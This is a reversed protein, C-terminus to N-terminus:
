KVIKIPRQNAPIAPMGHLLSRRLFTISALSFCARGARRKRRKKEDNRNKGKEIRREKETKKKQKTKNQKEGSETEGVGWKM